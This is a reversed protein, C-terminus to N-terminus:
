PLSSLPLLYLRFSGDCRNRGNKLAKRKTLRMWDHRATSLSALGTGFGLATGGASPELEGDATDVTEEALAVVGLTDPGTRGDVQCGHHLVERCLDELQGAVGSAVVLLLPDVRAMELEGDAVILLQVLKQGANGDGLAADQGVDLSDEQGLLSATSLLTRLTNLVLSRPQM